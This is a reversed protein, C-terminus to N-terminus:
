TNQEEEASKMQFYRALFDTYYIVAVAYLVLVIELISLVSFSSLSQFLFYFSFTGIVGALIPNWFIYLFRRPHADHLSVISSLIALVVLFISILTLSVEKFLPFAKHYVFSGDILILCSALFLLFGYWDRKEYM